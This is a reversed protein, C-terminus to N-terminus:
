ELCWATSLFPQSRYGSHNMLTVTHLTNTLKSASFLPIQFIAGDVSGSSTSVVEDLTVNYLGHNTRKAGFLWIATGNFSFTAGVESYLSHLHRRLLQYDCCHSLHTEWYSVHGPVSEFWLLDCPIRGESELQYRILSNINDITVNPM